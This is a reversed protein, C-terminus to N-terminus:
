GGACLNFAWPGHGATCRAGGLGLPGLLGRLYMRNRSEVRGFHRVQAFKGSLRRDTPWGWDGTGRGAVGLETTALSITELM